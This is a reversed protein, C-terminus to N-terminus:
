RQSSPKRQIEPDVFKMRGRGKFRVGNQSTQEEEYKAKVRELEEKRAAEIRENEERELREDYEEETEKREGTSDVPVPSPLKDKKHKSSKKRKKHGESESGSPSRSRNRHRKSKKSKSKKQDVDSAELDEGSKGESLCCRNAWHFMPTFRISMRAAPRDPEIKKRLELEGCNTIEVLVAPRSKEDVSVTTIKQIVEYGRIVKGFVVHKGATTNHAFASLVM